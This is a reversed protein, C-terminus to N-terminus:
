FIITFYYFYNNASELEILSIGINLRDKAEKWYKMARDLTAM